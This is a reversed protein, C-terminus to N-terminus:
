RKYRQTPVKAKMSIYKPTTFGANITKDLVKDGIKNQTYASRSWKLYDQDSLNGNNFYSMEISDQRQLALLQEYTTDEKKPRTYSLFYRKMYKQRREKSIEKRSEKEKMNRKDQNVVKSIYQKSSGVIKAIETQKLHQEYYM